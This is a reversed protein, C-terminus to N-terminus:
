CSMQGRKSKFKSVGNQYMPKLVPLALIVAILIAQLLKLDNAELGINIAIGVLAQYTISGLIVSVLWSKFTKKGFIVEGIIISALGLGIAGKGIDMNSSKMSQVTLAGSVAILGNSIALGLVIMANTNIGQARSMKQNMGTSRISMGLETGFFWYLIIFLVFVVLLTTLAKSLFPDNLKERLFSYITDKGTLYLSAKGM